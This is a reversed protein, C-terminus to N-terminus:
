IPQRLAFGYGDEPFIIEMNSEGAKPTSFFPAPGRFRCVAPVRSFKRDSWGVTSRGLFYVLVRGSHNAFDLRASTRRTRLDTKQVAENKTQECRRVLRGM